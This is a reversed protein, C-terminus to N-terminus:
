RRSPLGEAIYVAVSMARQAAATRVTKRNGGFIASEERGMGGRLRWAFCVLGVPKDASGGGPGAIGTIALSMDAGGVSGSAKLIGEAMAVAVERSVAGAGEITERPVGLLRIKCENSYAVVGGWLVNSSGPLDTLAATVLGGTCSEACAIKLSRESLARYLERAAARLSEDDVNPSAAGSSDPTEAREV